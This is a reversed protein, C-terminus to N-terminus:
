RQAEVDVGVFAAVQEGLAEDVFAEDIQLPAAAV